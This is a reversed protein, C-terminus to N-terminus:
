KNRRTAYAKRKDDQIAEAFEDESLLKRYPSYEKQYRIAEIMMNKNLKARDRMRSFKSSKDLYEKGFEYNEFGVVEGKENKTPKVLKLLEKITDEHAMKQADIPKGKEDKFPNGEKNLYKRKNYAETAKFNAIAENESAVKAAAADSAAKKAADETAKSKELASAKDKSEVDALTKKKEMSAGTAVAAAIGLGQNIASQFAGM